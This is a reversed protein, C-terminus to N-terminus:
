LMEEVDADVLPTLDASVHQFTHLIDKSFPALGNPAPLAHLVHATRSQRDACCKEWIPVLLTGQSVVLWVLCCQPPVM